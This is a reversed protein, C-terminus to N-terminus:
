SITLEKYTLTESGNNRKIDIKCNYPTDLDSKPTNVSVNDITVTAGLANKITFSRNAPIIVLLMQGSAINFSQAKTNNKNTATEWTTAYHNVIASLDGNYADYDAQSIVQATYKKAATITLNKTKTGSAITASSIVNGASSKVTATSGSHGGSVTFTQTGEQAVGLDMTIAEGYAQNTMNIGYTTNVISVSDATATCGAAKPNTGNYTTWKALAPTNWTSDPAFSGDNFTVTTSVQGITKGVEVMNNSFNANTLGTASISPQNTTIGRFEKEVLMKLIESLTKGAPITAGAAMNGLAVDLTINADLYTSLAGDTNRIDGTVGAVENGYVSQITPIEIYMPDTVGRVILKIAQGNEIIYTPHQSADEPTTTYYKEYYTATSDYETPVVATGDNGKIFYNRFNDATVTDSTPKYNKYAISGDEVFKDVPLTVTAAVNNGAKLSFQVRGDQLQTPQTFSLENVLTSELVTTDVGIIYETGDAPNQTVSVFSGEEQTLSIQEGEELWTIGSIVTTPTQPDPTVIHVIGSMSKVTKADVYYRVSIIEGDRVVLTGNEILPEITSKAVSKSEFPLNNRFVQLHRISELAM